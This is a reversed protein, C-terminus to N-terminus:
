LNYMFEESQWVGNAKYFVDTDILVYHLLLTYERGVPRSSEGFSDTFGSKGVRMKVDHNADFLM